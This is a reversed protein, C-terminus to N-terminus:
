PAGIKKALFEVSYRCNHQRSIDLATRNKSDRAQMDAGAALLKKMATVRQHRAAWMLATWRYTNTALNPDASHKLLQDISREDGVKVAGMLPTRGRDDRVNPDAGKALLLAVTGHLFVEAAIHLATQGGSSRHHVDIDPELLIAQAVERRDARIMTCLLESLVPNVDMVKAQAGCGGSPTRLPLSPFLAQCTPM